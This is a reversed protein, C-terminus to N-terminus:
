RNVITTLLNKFDSFDNETGYAAREVSNGLKNDFLVNVKPKKILNIIDQTIDAPGNIKNELLHKFYEKLYNELELGEEKQIKSSLETKTFTFNSTEVINPPVTYSGAASSGAASTGAASSGAASSGAASSGAASSGAEESYMLPGSRRRKPRPELQMLVDDVIANVTNPGAGEVFNEVSQAGPTPQLMEDLAAAVESDDDGEVARYIKQLQIESHWM